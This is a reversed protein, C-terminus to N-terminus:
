KKTKRNKSYQKHKKTKSQKSQKHKKTKRNKSYQKHKKNSGGELFKSTPIEIISKFNGISFAGNNPNGIKGSIINCPGNTMQARLKEDGISYFYSTLIDQFFRCELLVVDGKLDMNASYIDHEAYELWDYYKITIGDLKKNKENDVPDEFFDFYSNLSFTPDGYSDTEKDISFDRSFITTTDILDKFEPTKFDAEILYETLIDPQLILQKIIQIAKTDDEGQLELLDKIIKKIETYLVHNTHRSNFYLLDKLYNYNIKKVTKVFDNYFMFYYFRNLKFLILFIYTKLQKIKNQKDKNRLKIKEDRTLINSVTLYDYLREACTKIKIIINENDILDTEIEPIAHSFGTYDKTIQLMVDIIDEAKASFTMQIKSCINDFSNQQNRQVQNVQDTQLYYLTSNEPLPSKYLLCGPVEIERSTTPNKFIFQGPIPSFSDIHHLINKIMNLFTDLIINNSQTPKYYTVVWEVNTFNYLEQETTEKFKFNIEYEKKEETNEKYKYLKDKIDTISKDETVVIDKCLEKLKRNFKPKAIDNTIHFVGEAENYENGPDEKNEVNDYKYMKATSQEAMREEIYADISSAVSEAVSEDEDEDEDEELEDYEELEEDEDLEDEQGYNELKKFENMDKRASDSNYLITNDLESETLKVLNTSEVEYGISLIKDLGKQNNINGGIIKRRTIKTKSSKKTNTM